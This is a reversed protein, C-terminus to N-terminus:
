DIHALSEAYLRLEELLYQHDASLSTDGALTHLSKIFRQLRSSEGGVTLRHRCFEEWEQREESSLSDPYNRAKYLPLLTNLRNDDFQIEVPSLESPDFNRVLRMKARDTDGFFGDYLQSDVETTDASLSTQRRSTIKEMAEDMLASLKQAQARVQSHRKQLDKINLKLREQSEAQLVGLPAVAPCRNYKLTKVPIHFAREDHRQTLAEAIDDSSKELLEQPDYRLDFVWSAAVQGNVGSLRTVVTTKETEAAYRGSTYVFPDGSEAIKAVSRKDRIDRLYDFLKPQKERILAAIAITARVDSLADHANNHDLNNVNTLLELRNSASGDSAFPWTIGAPRLARTMRVVDLMDWRSRKDQWSWEYADYFNRYHLFRMFEDDFRVSNFGTFITGPIAIDEYFVRLFEAESIGDAITKQPTIGTVLIAQPDPLVDPTLIIHYNFPDGVPKLNMDTRQAAFQMIRADRPNIGSTELDYFLFSAAM